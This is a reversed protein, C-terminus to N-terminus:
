RDRLTRRFEEPTRVGRDLVARYIDISPLRAGNPDIRQTARKIALIAAQTEPTIRPGIDTLHRLDPQREPQDVFWIDFTWLDDHDDACEVHLYLGDPYGPDTNWRGTDDRFTVARVDSRVGL